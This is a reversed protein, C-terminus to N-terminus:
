VPPRADAQRASTVQLHESTHVERAKQVTRPGIKGDPDLGHEKQWHAVAQASIEGGGGEVRCRYNTLDDFEEVWDPHARNYAGAAAFWAASHEPKAVAGDTHAAGDTAPATGSAPAADNTSPAIEDTPVGNQKIELAKAVMAGGLTTRAAMLLADRQDPPCQALLRTLQPADDPGLAMVQDRLAPSLTQPQM